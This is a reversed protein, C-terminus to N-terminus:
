LHLAHGRGYARSGAALPGSRDRFRPAGRSRSNWRAFPSAVPLGRATRRLGPMKGQRDYWALHRNSGVGTKYARVGNASASFMAQINNIRGVQEAIPVADGSLDMRASDFPQAVLTTERVYLIYGKKSSERSPVYVPKWQTALLRKSSQQAPKTDLSGLYIGTSEALGNNFRLYVFHRGDPLFSPAVHGGTQNDTVATPTGGTDPVQLIGGAQVGILIVGDQSWAGGRFPASLECLTQAYGGSVEVKKLKGETQFGLYRSDPSWFPFTAATSSLDAAVRAELSGLPRVWLHNRGDPGAATFAITRGDPSVSFYDGM